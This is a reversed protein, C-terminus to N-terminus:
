TINLKGAQCTKVYDPCCDGAILCIEDCCCSGQNTNVQCCPSGLCCQEGPRTACFSQDSRKYRNLYHNFYMGRDTFLIFLPTNSCLITIIFFIYINFDINIFCINGVRVNGM